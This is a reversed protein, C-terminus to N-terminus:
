IFPLTVLDGKKFSTVKSGVEVVRGIGEHGLLAPYTDFGKLKKHIIKLDTGNCVGCSEMKVLAEYEGYKPMPVEVIELHGDEYVALSKM